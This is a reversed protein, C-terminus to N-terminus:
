SDTKYMTTYINDIGTEQNMGGQWRKPIWANTRQIQTETEAKCILGDTGNKQIGCIHM